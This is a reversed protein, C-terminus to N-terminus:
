LTSINDGIFIRYDINGFLPYKKERTTILETPIEGRSFSAYIEYFYFLHEKIRKEAYPVMTGNRIIFPWDSAQSLLIERAAQNLARARLGEADSFRLALDQMKEIAHHLYRYIWDNKGDLWVESYGKTGWSSFSPLNEQFEFNNSLYSSPSAIELVDDEAALRIVEELWALGEFWWHGFLEADYPCTIVPSFPMHKNIQRIQERKQTIFLHAHEKAKKEAAEPNYIDKNYTNGTIANYKYGTFVRSKGDPFFFSIDDMDLQYGIDQYFDRYVVDAPYGHKQSWVAKASHPDRGFAFVGSPTVIPAFVGYQPRKEAFLIAHSAVFFYKINGDALINELGPTYGCEPLWFGQPQQTFNEKHENIGINIQAKINNPFIEFLPLYAHTAASAVIEIYGKKRYKNFASLLDRHYLREYDELNQSFLNIYMDVLKELESNGRVRIKEREGLELLLELHKVYREQLLSDRLMAALTPTITMSISFPVSDKDLRAFMRLLPLYTESIAEFLWLEELFRDYEPHRVFPLHAHLHLLLYGKNM